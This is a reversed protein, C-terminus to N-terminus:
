VHILMGLFDWSNVDWSFCWHILMGLFDWSNVDWSFGM